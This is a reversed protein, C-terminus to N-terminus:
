RCNGGENILAPPQFLGSPVPVIRDVDQDTFRDGYRAVLPKRDPRPKASLVNLASNPVAIALSNTGAHLLHGLALRYPPAWLTGAAQGNVTVIAAERLPPDFQAVPRAATVAPDAAIWPEGQGLDLVWCADKALPAPLVIRAAYTATGSRHRLAPERSWSGFTELARLRGDPTALTWGQPLIRGGVSSEPVPEGGAVMAGTVLFRTEYPALQLDVAGAGAGAQWRRGSMPDWWAAPAGAAPAPGQRIRTRLPTNGTNVFFTIDGQGTHRQVFGLAGVPGDTAVDPPAIARLAAGLHSIDAVVRVNPMAALRRAIAVVAKTRADGKLGGSIHPLGGVVIVSGGKRAWEEIAAFAKGDIRVMAPLVLAKYPLPRNAVAGADVFDFGFGADLVAPVLTDPVHRHLAENISPAAPTMGAMADETPLYVAVGNAPQGQRLMWSVRALYTTVAPMAAFWPNHDNIAAAAYFAWGTEPIGPPSYPWGHGVLQNVGQLFHRDAEVKMDLPTAAWAPSHLWTWVESSAIPKGYLHAGSTAWRTSTFERWNAGEGEPIAVLRNSSLTPPPFGYVQARFRTGHAGAWADIPALYREEVLESLTRAWDYRVADSEPLDIFLAALHAILDYGRRRRFQAALDATWSAGYAELSDSFVADPPPSGAFASMLREGVTHLYGQVAEQSAHDIVLGEAGVAPRKVTQGTHGAIFVLLASAGGAQVTRAGPAVPVARPATGQIGVRAAGLVSEGAALAPLAVTRSGGTVPIRVLRVSASSQALPVQPGGFPWGSGLTVDVRLGAARGSGAAHRLHSLFTDSLFRANPAIGSAGQAVGDVALPYVPQVEFGGFGGARMQEIERDIEDDTVAPGFWWWRVLPRAETPPAAFGEWVVDPGVPGSAAVAHVGGAALVMGAM